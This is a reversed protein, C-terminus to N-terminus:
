PGRLSLIPGSRAGRQQGDIPQFIGEENKCVVASGLFYESGEQMRDDEDSFEDLVEQLLRKTTDYFYPFFYPVTM